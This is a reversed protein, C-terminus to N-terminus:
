HQMLAEESQFKSTDSDIPFGRPIFRFAGFLALVMMILLLEPNYDAVRHRPSV